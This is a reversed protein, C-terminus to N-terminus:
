ASDREATPAGRAVKLCPLAFIVLGDTSGLVSEVAREPHPMLVAVNVERNSVQRVLSRGDLSLDGPRRPASRSRRRAGSPADPRSTASAIASAPSAALSGNPNADRTTTSPGDPTVYRFIIQSNRELEAHPTASITEKWTRSPCKSSKARSRPAPSPRTRTKSAFTCRAAFFACAASQATMAGPLLGAELLIQFGNCIGLVLGGSRAFRGVAQMVPSFRAIAGTRSIIATPFDAPFFLRTSAPSTKPNTGSSNPPSASSPLSPTIARRRRLELRSIPDVGFKMSPSKLMRSAPPFGLHVAGSFAVALSLRRRRDFRRSGKAPLRVGLPQRRVSRSQPEESARCVLARPRPQHNQREDCRADLETQKEMGPDHHRGQFNDAFNLVQSRAMFAAQEASLDAAFYEHFQAPDLYAFGDPRRRSPPRNASTARSASEMTRRTRERMRCTLRSTYWALSPRIRGRKRQDRGRRLQPRCPHVPWRTLRPRAEHCGCRRQLINRTGPRHKRQYGDKVLIDYVGKWGSGDAWAGDVLVINRIRHAEKQASLACCVFLSLVMCLSQNMSRIIRM